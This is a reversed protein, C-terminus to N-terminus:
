ADEKESQQQEAIVQKSDYPQLASVSAVLGIAGSYFLPLIADTGLSNYRGQVVLFIIYLSSTFTLANFTESVKSKLNDLFFPPTHRSVIDWIVHISFYLSFWFTYFQGIEDAGTPRYIFALAESTM